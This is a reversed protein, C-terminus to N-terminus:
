RPRKLSVRMKSPNEQKLCTRYTAKTAIAIDQRSASGQLAAIDMPEDECTFGVGAAEAVSPRVRSTSM